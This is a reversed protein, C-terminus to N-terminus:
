SNLGSTQHIPNLNFRELQNTWCKCFFEYTTLGKIAKLRRALNYANIIDALHQRLQDHSDYHYRHVTAQKITRNM